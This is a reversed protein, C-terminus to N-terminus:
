FLDHLKEQFAILEELHIVEASQRMSLALRISQNTQSLDMLEEAQRVILSFWDLRNNSLQWHFHVREQKHKSKLAMREATGQSTCARQEQIHAQLLRVRLDLFIMKKALIFRKREMPMQSLHISQVGYKIKM